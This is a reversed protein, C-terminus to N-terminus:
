AAELVLVRWGREALLSAAVVGNPGAGIVIADVDGPVRPHYRRM